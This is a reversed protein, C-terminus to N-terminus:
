FLYGLGVYVAAPTQSSHGVDTAVVFSPGIALRAGAGYGVHLETLLEDLRINGRWVRGADLFGSLVLHSPARRLAFARADWRVETNAFAIGRGVYRNKPLGRISSAGGLAEDDRYSGQLISLETPPLNGNVNQMVIRDAITVKSTLPTYHRLTVTARTFAADDIKGQQVLVDAWVGRRTGIERDRTDLVLGVRGYRATYTPLLTTGSTPLSVSGVEQALLTTGEGYPVTTVDVSRAGAGLLLRFGPVGLDHQGDVSVRIVRRGYRYYYPNAGTTAADAAVTQNGIGYYPTALQRESAASGGVRWGGPLLHPADIFLTFDRRGRTTLFVTPQVTYRYPQV